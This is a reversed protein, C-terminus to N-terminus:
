QRMKRGRKRLYASERFHCFSFCSCVDVHVCLSYLQHPFTSDTDFSLTHKGLLTDKKLTWWWGTTIIMVLAIHKWTLEADDCRVVCQRERLSRGKFFDYHCVFMILVRLTKDDHNENWQQQSQRDLHSVSAAVRYFLSLCVDVAYHELKRSLARVVFHYFAHRERKYCCRLFHKIVERM